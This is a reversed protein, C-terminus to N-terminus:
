VKKNAKVDWGTKVPSDATGDAKQPKYEMEIKAFNLSFQETPVVSSGMSGGTQYSSVLVDTMEIKLYELPNEGAKRAVLTAKSFHKGNCCALMLGPTAKSIAMTFSLDNVSVKGAGGGGGTASAGANTAGWSWALVDIEGGHKSDKSEGDIGGIKMFFDVAAM